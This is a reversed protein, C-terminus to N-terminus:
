QFALVSEPNAPYIFVWKEWLKLPFHPVWPIPTFELMPLRPM